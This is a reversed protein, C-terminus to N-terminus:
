SSCNMAPQARVKTSSHLKQVEATAPALVHTMADLHDLQLPTRGAVTAFHQVLIGYLVQVATSVRHPCPRCRVARATRTWVCCWVAWLQLGTRIGIHGRALYNWVFSAVRDAILVPPWPSRRHQENGEPSDLARSVARSPSGLHWSM